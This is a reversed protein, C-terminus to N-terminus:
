EDVISRVIRFGIYPTKLRPAVYYRSAVRAQTKSSRWDGGRLIRYDGTLPGLPDVNSKPEYMGYYDWCWEYVNGSMDYLEWSNSKREKVEHTEGQANDKYWGLMDINFGGSYQVEKPFEEWNKPETGGTRAAYEWEAETPLRYGLCAVGAQWSVKMGDINYCEELGEMVSIKNAFRVADYWSLTEVPRKESQNRSPNGEMVFQYLDQTVETQGIMFSRTIKVNHSFEDPNRDEATRDSGMIFEGAPALSFQYDFKTSPCEPKQDFVIPIEQVGFGWKVEFRVERTWCCRTCQDRTFVGGRIVVSHEGYPEKEKQLYNFIM